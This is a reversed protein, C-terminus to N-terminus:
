VDNELKSFAENMKRSIYLDAERDGGYWKEIMESTKLTFMDNVFETELDKIQINNGKYVSGINKLRLQHAARTSNIFYLGLKIPDLDDVHMLLVEWRCLEGNGLLERCM